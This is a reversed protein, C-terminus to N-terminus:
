QNTFNRTADLAEKFARLTEKLQEVQEINTNGFKYQSIAIQTFNLVDEESYMREQMWKAGQTFDLYAFMKELETDRGIKQERAADDLQDELTEQKPEEKKRFSDVAEYFEEINNNIHEVHQEPTLQRLEEIQQLQNSVVQKASEVISGQKPQEKPIIIQYSDHVSPKGEKWLDVVEVSECNTNNVFWELFEDDIAQVGDKILDQDTTMIIKKSDCIGVLVWDDKTKFHNVKIGDSTFDLYYDGEKIEEDSTIYIHKNINYTNEYFENLLMLEDDEAQILRSPKDTPLIHINKM